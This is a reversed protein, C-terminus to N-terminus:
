IASNILNKKKNNLIIEIWLICDTEALLSILGRAIEVKPWISNWFLRMCQM